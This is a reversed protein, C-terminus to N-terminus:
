LMMKLLGSDYLTDRVSRTNVSYGNALSHRGADALSPRGGSEAAVGIFSQLLEHM